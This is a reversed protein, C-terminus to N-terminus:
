RRKKRSLGPSKGHDYDSESSAAGLLARKEVDDDGIRAVAAVPAEDLADAKVVRDGLFALLAQAQRELADVVPLQLAGLQGIGDGAQDLLCGRCLGRGGRRRGFGGRRGSARVRPAPRSSAIAGASITTIPRNSAGNPM